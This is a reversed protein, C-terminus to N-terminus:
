AAAGLVGALRAQVDKVLDFTRGNKSGFVLRCTASLSQGSMLCLAIAQAQGTTLDPAPSPTEDRLMERVRDALATQTAQVAQVPEDARNEAAEVPVPGPNSGL